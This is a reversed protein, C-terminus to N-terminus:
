AIRVSRRITLVGGTAEDTVTIVIRGNRVPKRWTHRATVALLAGRVTVTGAGRTGDGWDVRARYQRPLPMADTLKVQGVRGTFRVGARWRLRERMTRTGTETVQAEMRSQTAVGTRTNLSRVVVGYRGARRYRHSGSIRWTGGVPVVAAASSSGDGWAITSTIVDGPADCGPYGVHTVLEAPLGVAAPLLRLVAPTPLHACDVPVPQAEAAPVM